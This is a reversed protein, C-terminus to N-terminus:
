PFDVQRNNATALSTSRHSSAAGGTTPLCSHGFRYVKLVVSSRLPSREVNFKIKRREAHVIGLRVEWGCVVCLKEQATVCQRYILNARAPMEVSHDNRKM